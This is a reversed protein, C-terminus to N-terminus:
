LKIFLVYFQLIQSSPARTDWTETPTHPALQSSSFQSAGRVTYRFDLFYWQSPQQSWPTQTPPQSGVAQNSLAMTYPQRTPPPQSSALPQSSSPAQSASKAQSSSQAQSSSPAQSGQKRTSSRGSTQSWIHAHKCVGMLFM